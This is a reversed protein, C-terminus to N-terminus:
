KSNILMAPIEIGAGTGDDSLVIDSVNESKTDIILALAGGAKEINRAMTVFSCNGREVLFIPSLDDDPDGSFDNTFNMQKTCGHPNKENFYIRGVLVQGYPIHGFNAM